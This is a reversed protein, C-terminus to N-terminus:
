LYGKWKYVVMGIWEKMLYTWNTLAGYSPLFLNFLSANDGLARFGTSYDTVNFGAKRFIALSRRMHFASTVLLYKKQNWSQGWKEEILRRTFIANEYTNVSRYELWLSTDPIGCQLMFDRSLLAEPAHVNFISDTGATYIIRPAVNDKYLRIAQIMRDNGDAYVTRKHNGVPVESVFGGLIIIADYHENKSIERAPYEWKRLLSISIFPNTFVLLFIFGAIFAKKNRTFAYWLFSLVILSSPAVLAYLIKSLIFFM